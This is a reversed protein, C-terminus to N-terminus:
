SAGADSRAAQLVLPSRPEDAARLRRTSPYSDCSWHGAGEGDRLRRMALALDPKPLEKHTMDESDGSRVKDDAKLREIEAHTMAALSDRLSM